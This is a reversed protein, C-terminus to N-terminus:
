LSLISALFSFHRPASRRALRTPFSQLNSRYVWPLPRYHQWSQDLVHPGGMPQLVIREGPVHNLRQWFVYGSSICSQNYVAQSHIELLCDDVLSMSIFPHQFAKFLDRTEYRPICHNFVHVQTSAGRGQFSLEWVRQYPEVSRNQDKQRFRPLVETAFSATLKPYSRCNM